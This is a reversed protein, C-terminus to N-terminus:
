QGNSGNFLKKKEIHDRSNVLFLQIYTLPYKRESKNLAWSLLFGCFRYMRPSDHDSVACQKRFKLLVKQHSNKKKQFHFIKNTM